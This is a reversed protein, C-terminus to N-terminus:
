GGSERADMSGSTAGGSGTPGPAVPVGADPTEVPPKGHRRAVNITSITVVDRIKTGVRTTLLGGVELGDARSALELYLDVHDLEAGIWRANAASLQYIPQPDITRVLHGAEFRYASATWTRQSADDTRGIAVLEDRGDVPNRIPAAFVLGPVHVAVPPHEGETPRVALDDGDIGVLEGTASAGTCAGFLKDTGAPRTCPLAAEPPAAHAAEPTLVVMAAAVEGDLVVRLNKLQALQLMRPDRARDPEAVVPGLAKVIEARTSGVRIGGETRAVEGTIVAVFSATGTPEAAGILVADDEARVLSRHVVSPIDLTAVRPGSPLQELTQDLKEGLKYPGVGEARIAHPPLPRVTGSPPEIIRRPRQEQPDPVPNDPHGGGCGVVLALLALRAIM